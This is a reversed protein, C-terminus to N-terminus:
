GGPPHTTGALYVVGDPGIHARHPEGPRLDIRDGPGLDHSEGEVGITMSGALVFRVERVPHAHEPYAVGPADTWELVYLGEAELERLARDRDPDGRRVTAM